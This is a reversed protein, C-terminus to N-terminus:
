LYSRDRQPRKWTKFFRNFQKACVLLSLRSFKFLSFFIHLYASLTVLICFVLYSLLGHKFSCLICYTHFIFAGRQLLKARISDSQKNLTSKLEKLICRMECTLCDFIRQCKGLIKFRLDRDSRDRGHLGRVHKWFGCWVNIFTDTHAADCVNCWVVFRLWNIWSQPNRNEKRSRPDSREAQTCPIIIFQQNILTALVFARNVFNSLIFSHM